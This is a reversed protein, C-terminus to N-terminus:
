VRGVRAPLAVVWDRFILCNNKSLGKATEVTWAMPLGNLMDVAAHVKYGYYGGGKRTSVASRHGRSADPDSYDSANAYAPLNDRASRQRTSRPARRRGASSV